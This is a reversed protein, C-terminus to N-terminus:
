IDVQSNQATRNRAQLAQSFLLNFAEAVMEGIYREQQLCEVLLIIYLYVDRVEQAPKGPPEAEKM